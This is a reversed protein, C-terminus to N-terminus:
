KSKTQRYTRESMVGDTDLNWYELIAKIVADFGHCFVVCYGQARLKEAYKIQAESARGTETKLECRFGHYIGRAADIGTDPYGAKQGEAVMDFATKKPRKGSNLIAYALDYIDPHHRELFHFVSVQMYHEQHGKILEPKKQLAAMAKAHASLCVGGAAKVGKALKSKLKLNGSLRKKLGNFETESMRLTM